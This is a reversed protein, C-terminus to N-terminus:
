CQVESERGREGETPPDPLIYFPAYGRRLRPNSDRKGSM